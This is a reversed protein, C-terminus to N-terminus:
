GHELAKEVKERQDAPLESAVSRVAKTLAQIATVVGPAINMQM